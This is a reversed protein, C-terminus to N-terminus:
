PKDTYKQSISESLHINGPMSLAKNLWQILADAQNAGPYLGLYFPLANLCGANRIDSDNLSAKKLHWANVHHDSIYADIRYHRLMSFLRQYPNDGSLLQLRANQEGNDRIYRDIKEGYGYNKIAGLRIDALSAVGNFHWQSEPTSYFCDQHNMTPTTTMLLQPAEGEVLTILGDLQGTGAANVARSWPLVSVRREINHQQLVATLYETVIGPANADNCTYPCRDAAGLRLVTTSDSHSNVAGLLLSLTLLHNLM